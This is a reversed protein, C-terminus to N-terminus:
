KHCNLNRNFCVMKDVKNNLLDLCISSASKSEEKYKEFEKRLNEITDELKSITQIELRLEDVQKELAIVKQGCLPSCAGNGKL